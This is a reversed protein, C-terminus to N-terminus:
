KNNMNRHPENFQAEGQRQLCVDAVVANIMDVNLLRCSCLVHLLVSTFLIRKTIDNFCVVM